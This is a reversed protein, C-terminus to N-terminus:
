LAFAKISFNSSCSPLHMKSKYKKYTDSLKWGNKIKCTGNTGNMEMVRLVHKDTATIIVLDLYPVVLLLLAHERQCAVQIVNACNFEVFFQGPNDWATIILGDPKPVPLVPAHNGNQGAMTVINHTGCEVRIVRENGTCRQILSYPYPVKRFQLLLAHLLRPRPGILNETTGLNFYLMNQLPVLASDIPNRKM